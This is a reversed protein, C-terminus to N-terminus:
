ASRIASIIKMQAAQYAPYFGFFVGVLCSVGVGILVAPPYVIFEWASFRSIVYASSLGGAVGVLGGILCLVIAEVVFQLQIHRRQAGVARRLGIEGRRETVSVLMVNMVGVGGVVLSIGGIAGLMLTFIRTQKELQAILEEATRVLASAGPPHTSFWTEVAAPVARPDADPAIRGLAQRPPSLPYVRRARAYPILVSENIDFPALTSRGQPKLVGVVAYNLAGIRLSLGPSVESPLGLKEALKAGVVCYAATNDLRHLFRGSALALRNVSAFQEDVGLVAPEESKGGRATRDSSQVFSVLCELGPVGAVAGAAAAPDLELPRSPHNLSVTIFDTGLSKFQRLTEAEVIKGVTIMSIVSSIGISIGLVALLTRQKSSWLSLLSEKAIAGIM